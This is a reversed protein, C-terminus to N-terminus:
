IGKYNTSLNTKKYLFIFYANLKNKRSKQLFIVLPKDKQKKWIKAIIKHLHIRMKFSTQKNNNAAKVKLANFYLTM